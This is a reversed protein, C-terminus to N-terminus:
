LLLRAEPSRLGEEGWRQPRCEISVHEQSKSEGVQKEQLCSSGGGVMAVPRGLLQGLASLERDTILNWSSARFYLSAVKMQFSPSHPVLFCTLAKAISHM